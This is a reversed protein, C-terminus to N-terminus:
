PQAKWFTAASGALTANNAAVSDVLNIGSGENIAYVSSAGTVYSTNSANTNAAEAAAGHFLRVNSIQGPWAENLSDSLNSGIAMNATTDFLSTITSVVPSGVQVGDEYFTVSGADYFISVNKVESRVDIPNGQIDGATSKFTGDNSVTLRFALSGRNYRLRWCRQNGTSANEVAVSFFGTAPGTFQVDASVFLQTMQGSTSRAAAPAWHTSGDFDGYFKPSPEGRGVYGTLNSTLPSTLPQTIPKTFNTM